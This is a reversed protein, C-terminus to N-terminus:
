AGVSKGVKRRVQEGAYRIGKGKYPEPKKLERIEAAVQGVLRSDIGSVQINVQKEVKVAIGEPIQYEVPASYGLVLRLRGKDVEARYGVGVIELNKEFGKSVGLVMNNVLSRVLGHYSRERRGESQRRITVTGDQIAIDVGPPMVQSLRGKPGEVSVVAQDQRVSVGAPITIAMKGIRSM